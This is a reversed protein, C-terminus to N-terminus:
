ALCYRQCERRRGETPRLSPAGPRRPRGGVRLGTVGPVEMSRSRCCLLVRPDAGFCREPQAILGDLSMNIDLIVKSM